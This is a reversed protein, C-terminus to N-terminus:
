KEKNASLTPTDSLVRCTSLPLTYQIPQQLTSPSQFYPKPHKFAYLDNLNHNLQLVLPIKWISFGFNLKIARILM